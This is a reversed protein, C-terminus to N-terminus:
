VRETHTLSFVRSYNRARTPTPSSCVGSRQRCHPRPEAVTCRASNRATRAQGMTEFDCQQMGKCEKQTKGRVGAVTQRWDLDQGRVAPKVTCLAKHSHATCYPLALMHLRPICASNIGCDQRRTRPSTSAWNRVINSVNRNRGRAHQIYTYCYNRYGSTVDSSLNLCSRTTYGHRPTTLPHDTYHTDTV